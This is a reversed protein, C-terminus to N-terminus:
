GQRDGGGEAEEEKAARQEWWTRQERGHIGSPDLLMILLDVCLSRFGVPRKAAALPQSHPLLNTKTTLNPGHPTPSPSHQENMEAEHRRAQDEEKADIEEENMFGQTGTFQSAQSHSSQDKQTSGPYHNGPRLLEQNMATRRTRQAHIRSALDPRTHNELNSGCKKKHKSPKPQLGPVQRYLILKLVFILRLGVEEVM